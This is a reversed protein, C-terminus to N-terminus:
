EDDPSQRRRPRSWHCSRSPRSATAAAVLNMMAHPDSLDADEIDFGATKLTRFYEEITWRLRYLYVIRRAEDVSSVAHTTLLRWHVPTSGDTPASTACM